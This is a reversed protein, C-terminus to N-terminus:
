SNARNQHGTSSDSGAPDPCSSKIAANDIDIDFNTSAEHLQSVNFDTDSRRSVKYDTDGNSPRSVKYDTDGEHPIPTGTAIIVPLLVGDSFNNATDAAANEKEKRTVPVKSVPRQQNPISLVAIPPKGRAGVELSKPIPHSQSM